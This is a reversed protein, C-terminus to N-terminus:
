FAYRSVAVYHCASGVIVCIHWVLHGYRLRDAAFFAVGGTYAAGGAAIWALGWHNMHDWLPKAGVVILWGMALYVATSLTPYRVRSIATLVVGTIALIWVLVLLTWGWPGRLVGLMLPTYTGAILLYIAGHDIIRCVFKARGRPLGHYVTSAAFMLVMTAGYVSCAIIRIPDTTELASLVLVTAAIVAAFLGVGHSISNALEERYSQARERLRPTKFKVAM